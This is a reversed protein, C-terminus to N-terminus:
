KLFEYKILKAKLGAERLKLLVVELKALHSDGDKSCIILDDLYAYVENGIMESDMTNIMRQFTIPATKLGFPMRLWEFHSSLTSFVTIERSEAEMPVQWYGSLLDLSSFITNGQWLTMLLVGLVPLLYRDDEFVDIFYLLNWVSSCRTAETSM